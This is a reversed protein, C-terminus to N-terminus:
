VSLFFLHFWGVFLFLFVEECRCLCLLPVWMIEGPICCDIGLAQEREGQAAGKGRSKIKSM